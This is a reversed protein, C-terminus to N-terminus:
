GGWKNIYTYYSECWKKDSYNGGSEHMLAIDWTGISLGHAEVQRCFDVDYFHFVFREDFFINNDILTNRKAAIFVGDILKVEQRTQGFLDVKSPPFVKGHSIVGSFNEFSDIEMAINKFAWSPQSLRRLKNGM